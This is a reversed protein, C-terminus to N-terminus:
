QQVVSGTQCTEQQHYLTPFAAANTDPTIMLLFTTEVYQNKKLTTDLDSQPLPNFQFEVKEEVKHKLVGGKAYSDIQLKPTWCWRSAFCMTGRVEDIIM